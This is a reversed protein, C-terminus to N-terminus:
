HDDLVSPEIAISTVLANIVRCRHAFPKRLSFDVPFVPLPVRISDVAVNGHGFRVKLNSSMPQLKIQLNISEALYVKGLCVYEYSCGRIHPPFQYFSLLLAVRRGLEIIPTIIVIIIIIIYIFALPILSVIVRDSWPSIRFCFDPLDELWSNKAPM